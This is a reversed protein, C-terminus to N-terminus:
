QLYSPVVYEDRTVTTKVCRKVVMFRADTVTGNPQGNRVSGRVLKKLVRLLHEHEMQDVSMYEQKSESFYYMEELVKTDGEDPLVMETVIPKKVLNVPM